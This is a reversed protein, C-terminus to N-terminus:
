SWVKSLWLYPGWRCSRPRVRKGRSVAQWWGDRSYWLSRCSFLDQEFVLATNCLADEFGYTDTILPKLQIHNCHRRYSEWKRQPWRRALYRHTENTQRETYPARWSHPNCDSPSFATFVNCLFSSALWAPLCSGPCLCQSRWCSALSKSTRIM